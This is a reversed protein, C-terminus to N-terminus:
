FGFDKLLGKVEDEYMCLFRRGRETLSLGEKVLLGKTELADLYRNLDKWSVYSRAQIRSIRAGGPSRMEEERIASLITAAIEIANRRHHAVSGGSHFPIQM